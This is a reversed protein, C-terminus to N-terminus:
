NANGLHRIFHICTMHRCSIKIDENTFHRSLDKAIKRNTKNVSYSSNEMDGARLMWLPNIGPGGCFGFDVSAQIFNHLIQMYSM